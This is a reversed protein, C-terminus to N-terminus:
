LYINLVCEDDDEESDDEDDSDMKLKKQLPWLPWFGSVCTPLLVINVCIETLLKLKIISPPDAAWHNWSCVSPPKKGSMLSLPRKVPSTNNEEEEEEEEGDKVGVSFVTILSVASYIRNEVSKCPLILVLQPAEDQLCRRYKYFTFVWPYFTAWQHSSSWFRGPSPLYCSAHDWVWRFEDPDPLTTFLQCLLLTM